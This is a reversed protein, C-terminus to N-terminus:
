VLKKVKQSWLFIEMVNFYEPSIRLINKFCFNMSHEEFVRTVNSQSWQFKAFSRCKNNDFWVSKVCFCIKLWFYKTKINEKFHERFTVQISSVNCRQPFVWRINRSYQSGAPIPNFTEWDMLQYLLRSVM